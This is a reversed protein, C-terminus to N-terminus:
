FHFQIGALAEFNINSDKSLYWNPGAQGFFTVQGNAIPYFAGLGARPGFVDEKDDQWKIGGYAYFPWLDNRGLMDDFKMKMDAAISFNTLGLQLQFQDTALSVGSDENGLYVGASLNTLAQGNAFMSSSLFLLAVTVHKIM